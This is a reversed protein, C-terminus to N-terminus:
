SPSSAGAMYISSPSTVTYGDSSPKLALPPDPSPNPNPGMPPPGPFIDPSVPSESLPEPSFFLLLSDPSSVDSVVYIRMSPPFTVITLETDLSASPISELPSMYIPPPVM